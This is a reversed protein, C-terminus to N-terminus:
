KALLSTARMPAPPRHVEKVHFTVKHSSVGNHPALDGQGGASSKSNGIAAGPLDHSALHTIAGGIGPGEMFREVEGLDIMKGGDVEHHVIQIAHTQTNLLSGGHTFQVALRAGVIHRAPAHVAVIDQGHTIGHAVRCCERAFLVFRAENFGHTEAETTVGDHVRIAISVFLFHLFSAFIIRYRRERSAECCGTEEILM